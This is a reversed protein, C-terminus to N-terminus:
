ESNLNFRLSLFLTGNSHTGPWVRYNLEHNISVAHTVEVELCAVM